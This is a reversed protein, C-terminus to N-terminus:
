GSGAARQDHIGTVGDGDVVKNSRREDAASLKRKRNGAPSSIMPQPWVRLATPAIRLYGLTFALSLSAPVSPLTCPSPRAGAPAACSLLDLGDESGKFPPRWVPQPM